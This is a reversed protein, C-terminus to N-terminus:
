LPVPDASLSRVLLVLLPLIVTNKTHSVNFFAVLLGFTTIIISM